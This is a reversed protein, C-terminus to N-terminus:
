VDCPDRDGASWGGGLHDCRRPSCVAAQGSNAAQLRFRSLVSIKSAIGATVPRAGLWTPPPNTTLRKETKATQAQPNPQEQVEFLPEDDLAPLPAPLPPVVLSPPETTIPPSRAAPPVEFAPPLTGAAPVMAVPPVFPPVGAIPPVPFAAAPPAFPPVGAVPPVLMASPPVGGAAVQAAAHVPEGVRGRSVSAEAAQKVM